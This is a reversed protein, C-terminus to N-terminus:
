NADVSYALIRGNRDLIDGRKAPIEFTSNHQREARASLEGHQFMQLYVLRAEIAAAWTLLVAGGIAVRRGIANRWTSSVDAM